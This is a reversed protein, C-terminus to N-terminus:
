FVSISDFAKKALLFTSMALRSYVILAASCEKPCNLAVYCGLAPEVRKDFYPVVEPVVAPSAKIGAEKM